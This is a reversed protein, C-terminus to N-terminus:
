RDSRAAARLRDRKRTWAPLDLTVAWPLSVAARDEARLAPRYRGDHGLGFVSLTVPEEVLDVIWYTPIGASAFRKLKASQDTARSRPSTIEGVLLVDGVLVPARWAGTARLVVVDPRLENHRDLEIPLSHCVLRDEPCHVDLARAVAAM